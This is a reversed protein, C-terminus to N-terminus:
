PYNIIKMFEKVVAPDFHKGTQQLFYERAASDTWAKRYPRDSRLADWVDVAAFIRAALPIQEGQLKRPYGSGDWKEHHCYPIDLAPRLYAISALMDFALQPHTRMVAWEEETLPGPKLLIADPIGVKGIDHLLAGRHIHILESENVGMAQALRITMETTRKTHGKTEIDRLELARAWGELTNNYALILGENSSQLNEFMKASDVAIAAQGALMDLFSEEEQDLEFDRRQFLELAGKIQGKAILPICIYSVFGEATMNPSYHMPNSDSELRPIKIQRREQAARGAYCETMRLTPHLPRSNNFGRGACFEFLQMAPEFLLIESADVGLQDALQELLIDLVLGL